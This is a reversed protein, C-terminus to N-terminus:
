ADAKKEEAQVAEEVEAAEEVEPTDDTAEAHEEDEGSEHRLMAAIDVDNGKDDTAKVHEVVLTLAKTRLV